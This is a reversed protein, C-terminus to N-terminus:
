REGKFLRNLFGKDEAGDPSEGFAQALQRLLEKQEASLRTPVEVRAVVFLDGRRRGSVDPIGKDRLRFRTHTQTGEPINIREEGDITPVMIEGGLAARAFSIPIECYLDNNRREFIEHPQVFIVIYLDGADGGRVGADGEGALRIRSGNDVGAPIKITRERTKRIRGEGHCQGCPSQVVRGQGRCRSCVTQTQFTGLLTNQVHRVYGSGRCVQCTEVSSGPSAGSGDCIDCSELHNFRITKEVGRASEELTIELDHRLDDGHEAMSAPGGAGPGGRMGFFMDFIDSFGGAGGGFGAGNLGQHGYTDYVRRKDEQSLVEYAENIEKFLTEAEPERNVDPHNKRALSRYARKIEEATANRSVGLVEYYDRKDTM